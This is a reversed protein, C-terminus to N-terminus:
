RKRRREIKEVEEVTGSGEEEYPPYGKAGPVDQPGEATGYRAVEQWADEGDYSPDGHVIKSSYNSNLVREEAPRESVGKKDEINKQCSICHSIAPDAELRQLPIQSGCEACFGYSGDNIRNLSENVEELRIRAHEQLTLDKSREFNEAGLDSPHNDITSLEGTSEKLSGELFPSPEGKIQKELRDKEELLRRKFSNFHM